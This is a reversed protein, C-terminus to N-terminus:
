ILTSKRDKREEVWGESREPDTEPQDATVRQTGTRHSQERQTEIVVNEFSKMETTSATLVM